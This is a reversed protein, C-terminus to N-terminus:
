IGELLKIYELKVIEDEYKMKQNLLDISKKQKINIIAWAAYIKIMNSPNDLQEKVIEFMNELKLNASAIIANRKWINKGRWSAASNKYKKIFQANTINIIENLDVILEDYNYKENRMNLINRNKPCVVQCMDCGYIQNGMNRRYDLPIYEKTQTLYSICKKSNIIGAKIIANNPCCKICIDCDNCINSIDNSVIREADSNEIEIDILIYGLNIFSGYMDNILMSNKGYRGIGCEKCIERDILPSTDVCIKYSFSVYERMRNILQNIINNLKVHYDEGYSVVSLLGKDKINKKKYGFAYPIGIAIISKCNPFINKVNFRLNLNEEELENNYNNKIRDYFYNELYGYDLKNTFGLIDIGINKAESIILKKM